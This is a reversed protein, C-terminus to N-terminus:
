LVNLVISNSPQGTPDTVFSGDIALAQPAASHSPTSPSVADIQPTPGNASGQVVFTFPQSATGEFTSTVGTPDTLSM